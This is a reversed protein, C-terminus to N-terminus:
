SAAPLSILSLRGRLLLLPSARGVYRVSKDASLRFTKANDGELNSAFYAMIGQPHYGDTGKKSEEEKM